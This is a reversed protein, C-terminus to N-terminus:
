VWTSEQGYSTFIVEGNVTNNVHITGNVYEKQPHNVSKHTFGHEELSDYASYEDTFVTSGYEVNNNCVTDILSRKVPVDFCTMGNRQHICTIMPHDKDYTGRGRWPKLGKKRPKRGSKTDRQSM